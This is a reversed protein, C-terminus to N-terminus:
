VAVFRHEYDVACKMKFINQYWNVFNTCYQLNPTVSLTISDYLIIVMFQNIEM